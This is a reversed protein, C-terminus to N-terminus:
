TDLEIRAKLAHRSLVQTEGIDRGPGDTGQASGVAPEVGLGENLDLKTHGGICARPSANLKQGPEDVILRTAAHGDLQAREGQRRFCPALRLQAVAQAPVDVKEASIYAIVQRRLKLLDIGNCAGQFRGNLDIAMRKRGLALQETWRVNCM